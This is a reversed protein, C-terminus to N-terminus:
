GVEEAVADAFFRVFSAGFVRLPAGVALMVGCILWDLLGLAEAAARTDTLSEAGRGIGYLVVVVVSTIVLVKLPRMPASTTDHTRRALRWAGWRGAMEALCCIAVLPWLVEPARDFFGALFVGGALILFGLTRFAIQVKGTRGDRTTM